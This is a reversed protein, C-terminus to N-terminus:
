IASRIYLVYIASHLVFKRPFPQSSLSSWPSKRESYTRFISRTPNATQWHHLFLWIFYPAEPLFSRFCCVRIAPWRFIRESLGLVGARGAMKEAVRVMIFNEPIKSFETNCGQKHSTVSQINIGYDSCSGFLKWLNVFVGSTPRTTYHDHRWHVLTLPHHSM